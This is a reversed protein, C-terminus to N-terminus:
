LTSAPRVQLMVNNEVYYVPDGNQDFKKTKSVSTVTAKLRIVANDDIRYENWEEQQTSYSMNPFEMENKLAEPTYITSDPTGKRGSINLVTTLTQGDIRYNSQGNSSIKTVKTVVYKTKIITHDNRIEYKNWPESVVEFDLPKEQVSL